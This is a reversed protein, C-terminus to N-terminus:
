GPRGGDGGFVDRAAAENVIAVRCAQPTDQGGFLRGANPPVRNAFHDCVHVPRCGDVSGYDALWITRCSVTAVGALRRSAHLGLGATHSGPVSESRGRGSRFFAMGSAATENRSVLPDRSWRRWFRSGLRHGANTQLASRFSQVLLGTAIVLACCLAMQGVVIGMRLRRMVPSPGANERQLVVAPRDARIVFSAGIRMRDHHQRVRGVYRHHRGCGTRLGAAGCGQRFVLLPVVNTTWMAVLMGLAGGAVSILVADSLLQRALQGRSAGLAVRM